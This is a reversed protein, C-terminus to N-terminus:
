QNGVNFNMPSQHVEWTAVKFKEIFKRSLEIQDVGKLTSSFQALVWDM